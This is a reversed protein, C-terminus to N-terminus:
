HRKGTIWLLWAEASPLYGIIAVAVAIGLYQSQIISGALDAAEVSFDETGQPHSMKRSRSILKSCPDFPLFIELSLNAEGQKGEDKLRRMEVWVRQGFGRRKTKFSKKWRHQTFCLKFCPSTSNVHKLAARFWHWNWGLHCGPVCRHWDHMVEFSRSYIFCM